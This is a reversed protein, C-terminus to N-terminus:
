CTVHIMARMGCAQESSAAELLADVNEMIIIEPREKAIFRLAGTFTRALSLWCTGLGAQISNPGWRGQARPQMCALNRYKGHDSIM